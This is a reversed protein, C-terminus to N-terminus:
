YSLTDPDALIHEEIQFWLGSEGLSTTRGEQPESLWAAWFAEQM